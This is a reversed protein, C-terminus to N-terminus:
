LDTSARSILAAVDFAAEDQNEGDIRGLEAIATAPYTALGLAM